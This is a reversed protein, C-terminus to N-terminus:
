ELALLLRDEVCLTPNLGGKKRQAVDAKSLVEVAVLFTQRKVDTLRRFEKDSLKELQTYNSM